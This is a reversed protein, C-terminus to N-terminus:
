YWSDYVVGLDAEFCERASNIFKLDDKMRWEAYDPDDRYFDKQKMHLELADIDQANLDLVVCNFSGSGGKSEWLKEMWDHITYHKRWYHIETLGSITDPQRYYSYQDLGM